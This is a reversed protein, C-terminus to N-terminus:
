LVKESIIFKNTHLNQLDETKPHFSWCNVKGFDLNLYFTIINPKDFTFFILNDYFWSSLDKLFIKWIVFTQSNLVLQWVNKLVLIKAVLHHENPIRGWLLNLSHQEFKTNYYLQTFIHIGYDFLIFLLDLVEFVWNQFKIYTQMYIKDQIKLVM